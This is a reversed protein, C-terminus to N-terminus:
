PLASPPTSRRTAPNDIALVTLSSHARFQQVRSERVAARSSRNPFGIAGARLHSGQVRVEGWGWMTRLAPELGSVGPDCIRSPSVV